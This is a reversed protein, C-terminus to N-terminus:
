DSIECVIDGDPKRGKKLNNEQSLFIDPIGVPHRKPPRERRDIM